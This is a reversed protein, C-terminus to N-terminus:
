ETIDDFIKKKKKLNILHITFHQFPCNKKKKKKQM